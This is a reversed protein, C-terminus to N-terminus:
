EKLFLEEYKDCIIEWSYAERIRNKAKRAYDEIKDEPLRDAQDILASLSGDKKKWYLAADGSVERNFSVDCVLNLDTSGLSELLSPNTGGVEHGHIYAYANERIRSLLEQDYITGIFKIRDDKSFGLKNELKRYLGDNDTTIMIFKKSSNSKMFERIM